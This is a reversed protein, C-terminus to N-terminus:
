PTGFRASYLVGVEGEREVELEWPQQGPKVLQVGAGVAERGVVDVVQEYVPVPEGLVGPGLYMKFFLYTLACM